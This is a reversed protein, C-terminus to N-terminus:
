KNVVRKARYSYTWQGNEIRLRLLVWYVGGEDGYSVLFVDGAECDYDEIAEWMASLISRSLKDVQALRYNRSGAYRGDPDINYNKFAAESMNGIYITEDINSLDQSFVPVSGAVMLFVMVLIMKKAMQKEKM